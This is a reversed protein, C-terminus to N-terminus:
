RPRRPRKERGIESRSSAHFARGKGERKGRRKKKKGFLSYTASILICDKKKKKEERRSAFPKGREEKGKRMLNSFLNLLGEGERAEKVKRKVGKKGAYSRFPTPLNSGEVPRLLLRRNRGGRRQHLSTNL